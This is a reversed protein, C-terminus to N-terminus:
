PAKHKIYNNLWDEFKKANEFEKKMQEFSFNHKHM